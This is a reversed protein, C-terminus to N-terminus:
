TLTMTAISYNHQIRSRWRDQKGRRIVQARTGDVEKIKFFVCMCIDCNGRRADKKNRVAVSSMALTVGKNFFELDICPHSCFYQHLQLLIKLYFDISSRKGTLM